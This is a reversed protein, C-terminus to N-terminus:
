VKVRQKHIRLETQCCLKCVTKEKRYTLKSFSLITITGLTLDTGPDAYVAKIQSHQGLM